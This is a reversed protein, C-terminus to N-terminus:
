GEPEQYIRARVAADKAELLKRLAVTREPNAPLEAVVAEAVMAFMQSVGKLHPPLHEYSFFQLIRDNM